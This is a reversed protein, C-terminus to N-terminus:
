AKTPLLVATNKVQVNDFLGGNNTSTEDREDFADLDNKFPSASFRHVSNFSSSSFSRQAGLPHGEYMSSRFAHVVRIQQQIRNLGRFWLLQGGKHNEEKAQGSVDMITMRRQLIQSGRRPEDTGMALGKPLRTAPICAVVQHWVLEFAGLGFCILWHNLTLDGNCSMVSGGFLVILIQVIFTGILIGVFIMNDFLGKFVNREGHIKRANIENFLQMLVFTNFIITFHVSPGSTLSAGIGSETIGFLGPKFLLLFVVILQYVSHGLINKAMERSILPSDRGYPKRLLLDETPPETALALSAFTDMILNVWLMQVAKLPPDNIIAASFFSVVVAVVNVTLQFQLFKAISDYVNRGWMVAKVISTFNDDTLIIDSAEKAVDTGAIGMAFGVDAKKLAPGDNTGDGTVAVVERNSSIKSDIIGKVLTHKDTPSSRALVRLNPWVQDLLSQQVVGNGDRIRQNFEKGDMVTYQSDPSLIGCKTAISRATAVNDGTVMRVTIGARQCQAIANPVEPRVPDEIGVIGILTLKSIVATEDDWDSPADEASFHRYALGITRLADDAFPEIVNSVVNDRDTSGLPIVEADENMVTSCKKIIIESAGKTYMTFSGDAHKIVTSMSKRASNFTFVKFFNEEPHIKRVDDYERGLALVFGLLACETKNGIQMDQGESQKMIKSTYSSNISICSVLSDILKSSVGKNPAVNYVHGGLCSRVVTMRNTTLTGTKDSCIITANGMTECADLHRVLNNDAMMKKVSFALSITVALPLGEPVAVVLVTVGIIIFKLIYKFYLSGCGLEGKTLCKYNKTEGDTTVSHYDGTECNERMEEFNVDVENSIFAFYILKIVLVLVTLAAVLIGIKGILLAMSTLKAQLISKDDEEGSSGGSTLKETEGNDNADKSNAKADTAPNEADIKPPAPEDSDAGAGLLKFIQGSQSNEGVCTVVMKGSGEMVHTGSFLLPDREVSKKVHDSEGTMASEDIKIDNSQLIIGDAPLLDGYKVQCIDGVVIDAIAIEISKNGRVVTFVQDSEIKDQLGRFQKEKTWDNFATVVVVVVVALLIAGGEIFEIYPNHNKSEEDKAYSEPVCYQQYSTSVTVNAIVESSSKSKSSNGVLGVIALIISVVAAIMLIILTIEQVAEWMLRLFSKAKKPEIYNRGFAAVRQETEGDNSLGSVPDVKLKKCIEEVGGIEKVRDLGEAGRLGMLDRLEATVFGYSTRDEIKTKSM